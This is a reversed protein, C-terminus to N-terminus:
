YRVNALQNVAQESDDLISRVQRNYESEPYRELFEGARDVADEYRELQRDVFSNQALQFASQVLLFRIDEANDTDPYDKLVNDLAWLASQYQQRDYYLRASEFEKKELKDRMADILRNAEAVRESNPYQNIFEQLEEIAKYTYSQDLRFIPSLQYNSYASMYEAEQRNDSGGYTQAFNKFYYAALIYQRQYYYTYAYRFAIQEAEPRGRFSSIILEYLAQARQFDQEEFYENAKNYVREPDGSTRVREFESRCGAVILLAFVWGVVAFKSMKM